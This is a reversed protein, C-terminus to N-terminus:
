ATPAAPMNASSQESIVASDPIAAEMTSAREAVSDSVQTRVRARTRTPVSIPKPPEATAAVEVPSVEHSQDLNQVMAAMFAFDQNAQTRETELINQSIMHPTIGRERAMLRLDNWSCQSATGNFLDDFEAPTIANSRVSLWYQSDLSVVMEQGDVLKPSVGPLISSDLSSPMLFNGRLIILVKFTEGRIAFARTKGKFPQWDGRLEVLEGGRLFPAVRQFLEQQDRSLTRGTDMTWYQVHSKSFGDKTMGLYNLVSVYSRQALAAPSGNLWARLNELQVKTHIALDNVNVQRLEMLARVLIVDKPLSQIPKSM